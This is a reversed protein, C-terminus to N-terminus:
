IGAEKASLAVRAREHLSKRTKIRLHSLNLLVKSSKNRELFRLVIAIVIRRMKDANLTQTRGNELWSEKLWCFGCLM